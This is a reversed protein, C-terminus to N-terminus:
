RDLEASLPSFLLPSTLMESRHWVLTRIPSGRADSLVNLWDPRKSELTVQGDWRSDRVLRM